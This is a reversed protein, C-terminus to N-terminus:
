VSCRRVGLTDQIAARGNQEDQPSITFEDKFEDACDNHSSASEIACITWPFAYEDLLEEHTFEVADDDAFADFLRCGLM